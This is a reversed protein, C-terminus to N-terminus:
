VPFIGGIVEPAQKQNSGGISDNTDFVLRITANSFNLPQFDGCENNIADASMVIREILTNTGDGIGQIGQFMLFIRLVGASDDWLSVIQFAGVSQEARRGASTRLQIMMEDGADITFGYDDGTPGFVAFLHMWYPTVPPAGGPTYNVRAIYNMKPFRADYNGTNTAANADATAGSGNSLSNSNNFDAASTKFITITGAASGTLWDGSTVDVRHVFGTAGTVAQTITNGVIFGGGGADTGNLFGIVGLTMFDASTFDVSQVPM